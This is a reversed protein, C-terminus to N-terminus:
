WINQHHNSYSYNRKRAIMTVVCQWWGETPIDWSPQESSGVVVTPCPAVRKLRGCNICSPNDQSLKPNEEWSSFSFSSFSLCFVSQNVTEFSSRRQRGECSATKKRTMLRCPKSRQVGQVRAKSDPSVSIERSSMTRRPSSRHFFFVNKNHLFGLRGMFQIVEVM